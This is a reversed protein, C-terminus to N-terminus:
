VSFVSFISSHKSQTKVEIFYMIHHNHLSVVSYVKLCSSPRLSTENALNTQGNTHVTSLKTKSTEPSLGKVLFHLIDTHGQEMSFFIQLAHVSFNM